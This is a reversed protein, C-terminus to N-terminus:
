YEEKAGMLLPPFLKLKTSVIFFITSLALADLDFNCSRKIAVKFSYFSSLSATSQM